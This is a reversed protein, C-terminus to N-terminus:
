LILLDVVVTVEQKQHHLEVQVMQEVLHLAAAEAPAVGLIPQLLEALIVGVQQQLLVTQHGVLLVQRLDLFVLVIEEVAVAQVVLDVQHMLQVEGEVAVLPLQSLGVQLHEQLQQLEVVVLVSPILELLLHRPEM